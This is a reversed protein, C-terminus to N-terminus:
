REPPNEFHDLQRVVAKIDIFEGNIEYSLWHHSVRFAQHGRPLRKDVLGIQPFMRLTRFGQALAGSYIAAQRPGHTELTYDRIDRLDAKARDALRLKM